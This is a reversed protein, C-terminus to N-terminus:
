ELVGLEREIKIVESEITEHYQGSQAHPKTEYVRCILGPHAERFKVFPPITEYIDPLIVAKLMGTNLLLPEALQLEIATRRDDPKTNQGDHLLSRLSHVQFPHNTDKTPQAPRSHVYNENTHFFARVHRGASELCCQMQFDEREARPHIWSKYMERSWAGSDFPYMRKGRDGVSADFLLSLPAAGGIKLSRDCIRFAARGYSLYILPEKFDDCEFLPCCDGEAALEFDWGDLNHCWLLGPQCPEFDNLWSDIPSLM